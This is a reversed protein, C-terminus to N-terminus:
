HRGVDDPFIGCVCPNDANEEDYWMGDWQLIDRKDANKWIEDLEV